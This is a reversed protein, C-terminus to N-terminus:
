VVSVGDVEILDADGDQSAEATLTIGNIEGLVITACDLQESLLKRATREDTATVRVSALLKVDFLFEMVNFRQNRGHHGSTHRRVARHGMRIRNGTGHISTLVHHLRDTPLPM